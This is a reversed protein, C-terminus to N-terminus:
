CRRKSRPIGVTCSPNRDPYSFLNTHLKLQEDNTAPYAARTPCFVMRLRPTKLHEVWVHGSQM